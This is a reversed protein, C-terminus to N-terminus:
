HLDQTESGHHDGGFQEEDLLPSQFAWALRFNVQRWLLSFLEM